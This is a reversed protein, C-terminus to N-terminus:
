VIKNTISKLNITGDISMIKIEFIKTEKFRIGFDSRRIRSSRTISDAAGDACSMM